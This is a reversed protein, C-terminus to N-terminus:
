VGGGSGSGSSGGAASRPRRARKAADRTSVMPLRADRMRRVLEGEAAERAEGGAAFAGGGDGGGGGGGGGVADLPAFVLDLPGHRRRHQARRRKGDTAFGAYFRGDRRRRFAYVAARGVDAPQLQQEDLVRAVRPPPPHPPAAGGAAALDAMVGALLAEADDLSWREVLDGPAAAAAAYSDGGEDEDGSSSASGSTSAGGVADDDDTTQLASPEGSDGIVAEEREGEGASLRQVPADWRWEDEAAAAGFAGAGVGGSTEAAETGAAAAAMMASYPPVLQLLEAARRM